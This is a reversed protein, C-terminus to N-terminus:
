NEASLQRGAARQLFAILPGALVAIVMPVLYIGRVAATCMIGQFMPLYVCSLAIFVSAFVAIFLAPNRRFHSGSGRCEFLYLMQGIIMALFGASRAVELPAGLRLVQMYSFATFAGLLFGRWLISALLGGAFLGEQKPRPRHSMIDADPPEMGLAIAPLGDTLLNMMLIQIPVLATPAGLVMSFLMSLVEGLNSTLLYRIFRRINQYIVRGEEVASVITAFNDDLVVVASAEKTVDTGSIGMAVGIDAEKVAPADNVGDGTMAVVQGAAKYAQVIKLKDAPSVRAYVSVGMCRAALEEKTLANVQRGTLVDDGRRYIGVQAAIALATDRLDGTVMVPKIGARRCERVARAVEPRPPDIMGMLGLFVLDEEPREASGMALGIVRLASRAMKAAEQNIQEADQRTLPRYAGGSAIQRCRDLLIDPAGKCFSQPGRPGSVVVSMLKRKSDFPNEEKLRYEAFASDRTVGGKAAAILVAVETPDGKVRYFDGEEEISSSCCLVGCLFLQKLVPLDKCTVARGQLLVRGARAYGDGTLEMTGEATYLTKLTMKNQTITGTKDTCIVGACGLTEVAHLKRIVAGKKLIRNVSLALVITVIAPMGEPIAAVALSVGTLIMSLLSEGKLYGLAGVAMCIVLCAIAVFTGLEGLRQQLPTKEEAAEDLMKAIGGMETNMGIAYVRGEGRGAAIITGMYLQDAPQKQVPASEGTLLSEDASLAVAKEVRLDAPVKDGAEFLVQDGVVVQSAPVTHQVGDRVVKALPASLAKLSALTKETRYEQIFGMFANLLVISIITVAETLEGMLVSLLTAVALILIMLDKFQAFFMAVANKKRQGSIQNEGQEALLRQAEQQSLGKEM